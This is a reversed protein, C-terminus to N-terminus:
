AACAREIFAATADPHAVPVAHSSALEEVSAGCREAMWRQAQPSITRDDTAVLYRSRIHHWAAPGTLGTLCGFSAPGQTRAMVAAVAPDVDACFADAYGDVDLWLQGSDTPRIAAGGAAPPFRANIDDVDDGADLAYAAVFALAAARDVHNGAESIVAGGYSHGALVVPGAVRDAARVVTAVDAAFDSLPLQVALPEHGAALLRPIVSSWSSGDAWFGHVLIIATM